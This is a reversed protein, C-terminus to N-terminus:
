IDKRFMQQQYRPVDGPEITADAPEVSDTPEERGALPSSSPQKLIETQLDDAVTGFVDRLINTVRPTLYLLPAEADVAHTEADITDSEVDLHDAAIHEIANVTLAAAPVELSKLNRSVQDCPVGAGTAAFATASLMLTAALATLGSEIFRLLQTRFDV